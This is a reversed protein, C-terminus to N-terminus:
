SVHRFSIRKRISKRWHLLQKGHRGPTGITPFCSINRGVESDKALGRSFVTYLFIEGM